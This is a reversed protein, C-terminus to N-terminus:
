KVEGDGGFIKVKMESESGQMFLPRQCRATGIAQSSSACINRPYKSASGGLVVRTSGRTSGIDNCVDLCKLM